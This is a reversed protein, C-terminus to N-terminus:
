STCKPCKQVICKVTTAKLMHTTPADGIVWWCCQNNDPSADAM